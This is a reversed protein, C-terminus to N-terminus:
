LANPAGDANSRTTAGTGQHGHQGGLSHDTIDGQKWMECEGIALTAPERSEAARPSTSRPVPARHAKNLHEKRSTEM